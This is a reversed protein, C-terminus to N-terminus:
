GRRKIDKLFDVIENKPIPITRIIVDRAWLSNLKPIKELIAQYSTRKLSSAIQNPSKSPESYCALYIYCDGIELLEVERIGNDKISLLATNIIEVSEGENFVKRKYRTVFVMYYIIQIPENKMKM